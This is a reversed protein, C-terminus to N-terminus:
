CDRLRLGPDDAVAAAVQDALEAAVVQGAEDDGAMEVATVRVATSAARTVARRLENGRECSDTRPDAPGATLGSRPCAM